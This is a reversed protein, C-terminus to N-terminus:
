DCVRLSGEVPEQLDTSGVDLKEVGDVDVDVWGHVSRVRVRVTNLLSGEPVFHEVDECSFGGSESVNFNKPLRRKSHPIGPLIQTEDALQRLDLPELAHNQISVVPHM